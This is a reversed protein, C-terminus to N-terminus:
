VYARGIKLMNKIPNNNINRLNIEYVQQENSKMVINNAILVTPM